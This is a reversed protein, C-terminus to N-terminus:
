LSDLFAEVGDATMLHEPQPRSRFHVGRGNVHVAVGYRGDNVRLIDWGVALARARLLRERSLDDAQM